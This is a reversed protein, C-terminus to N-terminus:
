LPVVSAGDSPEAVFLHDGLDGPVERSAYFQDALARLVGDVRDATALAVICGGFGAGNLRAGAAGGARAIEVLQDLEHCSVNYDDRLSRHSANMLQGFTDVKGTSMAAVAELVRAGESVVHHFRALLTGALVHQGEAILRETSACELLEAYSGAPEGPRVRKAVMTLAEHCEARRQNYAERAAGSKSASVLSHAVIFRWDAPIEVATLRVPHFDIRFAFGRQAGLTIAQDMGGGKTGVYHEARAMLDMLESVQVPIDSTTLFALAAAIVLASSSSLGAAVPVSSCVAADIGSLTGYRETLGQAAAKLYNGWDGPHYPEIPSHLAFAREPFRAGCNIVRAIALQHACFLIAVDRQIAMPFVPLGAYDVHEGILNIRGPARAIHTPRVGGFSKRFATWAKTLHPQELDTM